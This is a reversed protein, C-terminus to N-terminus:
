KSNVIYFIVFKIVTSCRKYMKLSWDWVMGNSELTLIKWKYSMLLNKNESICKKRLFGLSSIWGLISFLHATYPKKKNKKRNSKREVKEYLRYIINQIATFSIWCTM